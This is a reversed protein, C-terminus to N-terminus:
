NTNAYIKSKQTYFLIFRSKARQLSLIHMQTPNEYVVGRLHAGTKLFDSTKYENRYMGADSLVMELDDYVIDAEWKEHHVIGLQLAHVRGKRFDFRWKVEGLFFLTSDNVPKIDYVDSSNAFKLMVEDVTEGLMVDQLQAQSRNWWASAILLLIFVIVIGFFRLMTWRFANNTKM